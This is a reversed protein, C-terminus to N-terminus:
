GTTQNITGPYDPYGDFVFGTIEAEGSAAELIMVTYLKTASNQAYVRFNRAPTGGNMFTIKGGTLATDQNANNANVAFKVERGIYSFVPTLDYNPNATRTGYPVIVTISRASQDILPASTLGVEDFAIGTILCDDAAAETVVVTYEQTAGNRGEAIWRTPKSYDGADWYSSGDPGINSAPSTVRAGPVCEVVPTLHTLDAGTPVMVMILRTGDPGPASGVVSTAGPTETFNFKTIFGASTDLGPNTVILDGAGYFFAAPTTLNSYVHAIDSRSVPPWPGDMTVTTTLRYEGPPLDLAGTQKVLGASRQLLLATGRRSGAVADGTILSIPIGNWADAAPDYQEVLLEALLPIQGLADWNLSYRLVGYTEDDMYPILTLCKPTQNEATVSVPKTKITRTENDWTRASPKDGTYGAASITYNAAPLTLDFSGTESFYSKSSELNNLSDPNPSVTLEYRSFEPNIALMTRGNAVAAADTGAVVVSLRGLGGALPDPGEVKGFLLDCGGLVMLAPLVAFLALTTKKVSNKM